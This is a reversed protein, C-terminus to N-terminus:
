RITAKRVIGKVKNQSNTIDTEVVYVRSDKVNLQTTSIPQNQNISTSSSIQPISPASPMSGGNGGGGPVQVSMIRKVNALGSVIAAGAALPALILPDIKAAATYARQAAVYTDITTTAIALAKGEASQQGLLQSFSGFLNSVESLTQLQADRKRREMEEVFNTYEKELRKTENRYEKENILKQDLFYKNQALELSNKAFAKEEETKDSVEIEKILDESLKKQEEIRKERQEKAYAKEFDAYAKAYNERIQKKLLEGQEVTYTEEKVAADIERLQDNFHKVIELKEKERGRAGEIRLEKVKDSYKETQEQLKKLSAAADDTAKKEKYWEYILVGLSAVLAIIGTSRIAKGLTNFSTVVQAKIVQSLIVFADKMGLLGNLGTALAIAGQTKLIAKQIDENESGFLAQAGQVASFGNAVGGLVSAFAQFKAEPNFAKVTNNVDEIQDQLQGARQAARIFADSAPDLQGLENKLSRLEGKLSKISAEGKGTGKVEVDIVVTEQAM